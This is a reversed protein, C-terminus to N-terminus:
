SIVPKGAAQLLKLRAEVKPLLERPLPAYGIEGAFRQGDHTMWWVMNVIAQGKLDNDYNKSLILWTASVIPYAADGATNLLNLNLDETVASLDAAAAATSELTPKVFKGNKNKMSIVPLKNLTAYSLEVYGIAGPVQKVQGTVGDNGQGGVGVPWQVSTGAGVKDKWSQSVMSLYSTFGNTTGSGDSRRVVVIDADPLSMTGNDAKVKPDTWKKIEGLYIGALTEPSLKVEGNVGPLNYTLVISGLVTPIMIVKDKGGMDEYQKDTLFADSAGFDVTKETFNKIGGSSGVAQYNTKVNSDFKTYEEFMKTYIPAPFTAGAGQLTVSGSVKKPTYAAASAQAGASSTAAAQTAGGSVPPVSVQTSAPAAATPNSTKKDDDGSGCALLMTSVTLLAAIGSIRLIRNM